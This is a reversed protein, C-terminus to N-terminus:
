EVTNNYFLLYYYFLIIAKQVIFMCVIEVFKDIKSVFM